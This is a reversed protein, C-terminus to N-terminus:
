LPQWIKSCMHTTALNNCRQFSELTIGTKAVAVEIKGTKAIKFNPIIQLKLCKGVLVFEINLLKAFDIVLQWTALFLVKHFSM